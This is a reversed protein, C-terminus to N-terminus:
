EVTVLDGLTDVFESKQQPTLYRDVADLVLAQFQEYQKVGKAREAMELLKELLSSLVRFIQVKESSDDSSLSTKFTKMDRFLQKAEKEIDINIEEDALSELSPSGASSTLFVSKLLELQEVSYPCEPVDLSGPDNQLLSSIISLFAQTERSFNPFHPTSM